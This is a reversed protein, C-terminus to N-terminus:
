FIRPGSLPVLRPLKLRFEDASLGLAGGRHDCLEAPGYESPSCSGVGARRAVGGLLSNYPLKSM